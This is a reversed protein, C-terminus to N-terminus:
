GEGCLRRRFDKVLAYGWVQKLSRNPQKTPCNKGRGTTLGLESWNAARYCTGRYRLPDVFTETFYIPHAYVRQWDASLRASMRGLLHSALHPVRVWPLILFRSQYTLGNVLAEEPTRRVQRIEVPSIESLRAVVPTTDVEVPAPPRRTRPIALRAPPLAIQGGRALALLLGRCLADCLTGNLQRWGWSLSLQISLARRSAGPREAIFERIAEVQATTIERGRYRLATQM